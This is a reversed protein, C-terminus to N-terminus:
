NRVREIHITLFMMEDDTLSRNYEYTICKNVKKACEYALSYETIVVDYLSGNEGAVYSGNILRHAFYKLHTVFRQFNISEEDYEIKFHYKVINLIDQIIKAINKIDPVEGNKQAGLLHLAIFAAEDEPLEIGMNNKINQVAALGINFEDKYLHKVDWLLMSKVFVGQKARELAFNLHDILAAYVSKHLKRDLRNNAQKVIDIVINFLEDSVSNFYGDNLTIDQEDDLRFIKKICNVDIIDEPKKHFGVGKGTVICEKGNDDFSIVVNNNLVKSIKM